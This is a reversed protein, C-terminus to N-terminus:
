MLDYEGSSYLFYKKYFDARTHALDDEDKRRTFSLEINYCDNSKGKSIKGNRILTKENSYPMNEYIMEGKNFNDLAKLTILFNNGENKFDPNFSKGLHNPNEHFVVCDLFPIMFAQYQIFNLRTDITLLAWLLNNVSFLEPDFPKEEFSQLLNFMSEAKDNFLM